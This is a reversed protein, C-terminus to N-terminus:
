MVIGNASLCKCIGTVEERLSNIVFPLWISGLTGCQLTIAAVCSFVLFISIIEVCFSACFGILTDTKISLTEAGSISRSDNVDGPHPPRAPM